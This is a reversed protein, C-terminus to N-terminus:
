HKIMEVKSKKKPQKNHHEVIEGYSTDAHHIGCLWYTTQEVVKYRTGEKDCFTCKTM